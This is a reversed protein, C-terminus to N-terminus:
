YEYELTNQWDALHFIVKSSNTRLPILSFSVRKSIVAECLEKNKLSIKIHRQPPNSKDVAESDVLAVEWTSGDCGSAAIEIDLCDGRISANKITYNDTETLNFLNSDLLAAEGCADVTVKGDDEECSTILGLFLIIILFKFVKM